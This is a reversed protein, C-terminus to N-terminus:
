SPNACGTGPWCGPKPESTSQSHERSTGPPTRLWTGCRSSSALADRLPASSALRQQVGTLNRFHSPVSTDIRADELLLRLQKETNLDEWQRRSFTSRETVFRLYALLQLGSVPIGVSLRADVDVNSAVYYSTAYELSERNVPSATFALVRSLVESVQQCGITDDLWHSVGRYGDVPASRWRCWVPRGGRWGVPLACTVRRGLALNLGLRVRSLIEFAEDGNFPAGDERALRGVHTFRRGGTDLLSDWASSDM